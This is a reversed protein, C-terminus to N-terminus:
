VTGAGGHHVVASMQPFLWDHPCQPTLSPNILMADRVADIFFYKDTNPLKATAGWGCSILLRVGAKEGATVIMKTFAEANKTSISGFGVYIPAPGSSIFQVLDAPPTFNSTSEHLFWFNTQEARDPWDDPRPCLEESAATHTTAYYCM